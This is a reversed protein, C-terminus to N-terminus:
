TSLAMAQRASPSVAASSDLRSAASAMRPERALGPSRARRERSSRWPDALLASGSGLEAVVEGLPLDGDELQCTFPEALTLDCGM